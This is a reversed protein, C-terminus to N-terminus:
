AWPDGELIEGDREHHAGFALLEMGEEGAQFARAVEPAVRIADYPRLERVEGDLQVRGTGALVLYVEEAKAHRHAFGGQGPKILYHALGTERAELESRPFRAEWLRDLGFRPAMDESERLNKITYGM